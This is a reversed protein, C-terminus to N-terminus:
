KLFARVRVVSADMMDMTVSGVGDWRDARGVEDHEQEFDMRKPYYGAYAQGLTVPPLAETAPPPRASAVTIVGSPAVNTASAGRKM